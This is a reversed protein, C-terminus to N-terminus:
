DEDFRLRFVRGGRQLIVQRNDIKKITFGHHVDGERCMFGDIYATPVAGTMTSQLRFQRVTDALSTLEQQEPDIPNALTQQPLTTDRPYQSLDVAFIDRQPLLVVTTDQPQPPQIIPSEEPGPPSVDVPSITAPLLPHPDTPPLLELVAASASEPRTVVMRILLVMLVLTLGCLLLVKPPLDRLRTLFSDVPSHRQFGPSNLQSPQGPM